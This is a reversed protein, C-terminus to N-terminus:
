PTKAQFVPKGTVDLVQLKADKQNATMEIRQRKAANDRIYISAGESDVHMKALMSDFMGGGIKKSVTVDPGGGLDTTLHVSGDEDHSLSASPTYKDGGRSM